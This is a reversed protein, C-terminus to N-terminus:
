KGFRGQALQQPLTYADAQTKPIADAAPEAGQFYAMAPGVLAQELDNLPRPALGAALPNTESLEPPVPWPSASGAAVSTAARTEGPAVDPLEPGPPVDRPVM